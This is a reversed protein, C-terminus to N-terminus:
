YIKEQRRLNGFTGINAIILAVRFQNENRVNGLSLRRYEFAIGCCSGNYSVQILQNQLAEQRFDYSTGFAANWGKRNLEGYGVQARVQNSPPQLVPDANVSFQALTVFFQSYPHVKVGTGILTLRGRVPDIDLRFEADYRGGPTIKVDSIVPSFRRPQDAFAFGTLSDVAPFVNRQGPLLAGGFTPDFYYKQSVRWSVLEDAQAEGSRRFLRQTIGYEIENTDTLTDGQDIRLFRGFDSVGTVYRYHIEPEITHKWKSNARQWIRALSPPRLDLDLEATTRRVSDSVVSGALVSSTYQTTRLTFTPTVGLWPGWRLPITVRPAIESRGVFSPSSLNTDGRHVGGVYADIGLYLPLRKWPALDVSGFRVEPASRLVVATEPQASLFNKYNLASFNLSFGHFNNTLFASNRVESNVAEGFTEAFALRFTLSTLQHLDAVARWGGPLLADLAVSSEHGGQPVRQGNPGTPLGRDEVGFYTAGLRVDDWPRARLEASQSWGRKSLYQAGATLDTWDAPAWYYSDGIVFGKTNSTGLVPLLFGSQRMKRNAPATAYPLYVLPIRFLRFNTNILAVSKDLTLTAHPSYFEWNPHEPNCVTLRAGTIKYVNESVREVKEAVFSVPNQSLLVTPNPQREIRVAGRVNLFTGQGTRFNYRAEAASLHQNNYDFQVNGRALAEKTEDNFEVRDARLRLGRAELRIEVDGDAIYLKGEVSQHKASLEAWDGGVSLRAPEQTSQAGAVAALLFLLPLAARM